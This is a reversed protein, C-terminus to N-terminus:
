LGIDEGTDARSLLERLKRIEERLMESQAKQLRLQARLREAESLGSEPKKPRLAAQLENKMFVFEGSSPSQPLSELLPSYDKSLPKYTEEVARLLDGASVYGTATERLATLVGRAFPSHGSSDHDQVERDPDGSTLVKKSGRRLRNLYHSRFDGSPSSHTGGRMAFTGSFCADTALLVHKAKVAELYSIVVKAGLADRCSGERSTRSDHLIWCGGRIRGENRGLYSGHGAFYVFVLDGEKSREVLDELAESVAGYTADEDVLLTADAFGYQSKLLEHLTEADKRAAGLRRWVEAKAYQDIGIILSRYTGL